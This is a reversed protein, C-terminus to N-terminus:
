HLILLSYVNPKDFTSLAALKSPVPYLKSEIEYELSENSFLINEKNEFMSKISKPSHRERRKTERSEAM